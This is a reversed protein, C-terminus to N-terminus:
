PLGGDGKAAGREDGKFEMRPMQRKLMSNRKKQMKRRNSRQKPFPSKGVMVMEKDHDGHDNYDQARSHGVKWAQMRGFWSPPVVGWWGVSPQQDETTISEHLLM